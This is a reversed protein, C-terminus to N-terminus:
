AAQKGHVIDFETLLLRAAEIQAKDNGKFRNAAWELTRRGKGVDELVEGYTKNMHYGFTCIVKKAEEITMHSEGDAGLESAKTEQKDIDDQLAQLFPDDDETDFPTPESTEEFDDGAKQGVEMDGMKEIFNGQTFEKQVTEKEFVASQDCSVSVPETKESAVATVENGSVTVSSGSLPSELKEISVETSVSGVNETSETVTRNPIESKVFEPKIEGSANSVDHPNVGTKATAVSKESADHPVRIHAELTDTKKRRGEKRKKHALIEQAAQDTESTSVGSRGAAQSEKKQGSMEKKAAPETKSDAGSRDVSRYDPDDDAGQDINFRNFLYYKMGYTLATGKAKDPMENSGILHIVSTEKEEPRDVNVWQVTLDAEYLWGTETKTLYIQRGNEINSAEERLIAFNIGYKNLAPTLRRNIDDLKVFDYDVEDSYHRKFLAPIKKRVKLMKQQLNLHSYSKM